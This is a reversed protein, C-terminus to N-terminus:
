NEHQAVGGYWRIMTRLIGSLYVFCGPVWMLMGALQQDSKPDLQTHGHVAYLGVPGFTLFAGLLSCCLCATFLYAVAPLAPLRRDPLPGLIPGWFIIGTVLFSILQVIHLSQNALAANFFLPIHWGLMTGVGLLWCIAPNSIPRLIVGAMRRPAALLLIPPLLLALLFHQFIHASLPYSDWANM